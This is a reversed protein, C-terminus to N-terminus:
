SPVFGISACLGLLHTNLLNSRTYPSYTLHLDLRQQVDDLAVLGPFFDIVESASQNFFSWARRDQTQLGNFWTWPRHIMSPKDVMSLLVKWIACELQFLYRPRSTGLARSIRLMYARNFRRCPSRSLFLVLPSITTCSELAWRDTQCLKNVIYPTLKEAHMWDEAKRQLFITGQQYITFLFDFNV